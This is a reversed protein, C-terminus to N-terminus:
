KILGKYFLFDIKKIISMKYLDCDNNQNLFIPSHKYKVRNTKMRYDKETITEKNSPHECLNRCYDYYKCTICYVEKM